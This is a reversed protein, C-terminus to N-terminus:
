TINNILRLQCHKEDDDAFETLLNIIDAFKTLLEAFKKDV